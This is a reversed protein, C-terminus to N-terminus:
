RRSHPRCRPCPLRGPAYRDVSCPSAGNRWEARPCSPRATFNDTAFSCFAIPGPSSPTLAAHSSLFPPRFTPPDSRRLPPHRVTLLDFTTGSRGVEQGDSRSCIASKWGERSRWWEWRRRAFASFASPSRPRGRAPRASSPSANVRKWPSVSAVCCGHARRAAACEPPTASGCHSSAFRPPCAGVQRRWGASVDDDQRGDFPFRADAHVTRTSSRSRM